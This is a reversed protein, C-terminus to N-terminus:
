RMGIGSAISRLDRDDRRPDSRRSLKSSISIARPHRTAESRATTTTSPKAIKRNSLPADTYSNDASPRTTLIISFSAVSARHRACRYRGNIPTSQCSGRKLNAFLIPSGSMRQSNESRPESYTTKSLLESVVNAFGLAHVVPGDLFVARPLQDDWNADQRYVAVEDWDIGSADCCRPRPHELDSNLRRALQEAVLHNQDWYQAVRPDSLRALVGTSPSSYDTPLIPEWVAFVRIRPNPNQRLV